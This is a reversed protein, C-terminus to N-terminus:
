PTVTLTKSLYSSTKDFVTKTLQAYVTVSTIKSVTGGYLKVLKYSTAGAPIRYTQTTPSVVGSTATITLNMGPNQPDTGDDGAQGSLTVTGTFTTLLTGVTKDFTLTALTAPRLTVPVTKQMTSSGTNATINIQTSTAVPTSILVFNSTLAGKPVTVHDVTGSVSIPSNIGCGALNVITGGTPAPYDLTVSGNITTGGNASTVPISLTKVEPPNVTVISLPNTTFSKDSSTATITVVAPNAQPIAQLQVIMSSQGQTFTYATILPNMVTTDSSNLYFKFGSPAPASLTVTLNLPQGGKVTQVAPNIPSLLTPPNIQLSTTQKVGSLAATLTATTVNAVPVTVVFVDATNNVNAASGSVTLTTIHPQAAIQKATMNLTAATVPVFYIGATDVSLAVPVGATPAPNSLAVEAIVLSGGSTEGTGQTYTTISM